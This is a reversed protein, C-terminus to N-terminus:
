RHIVNTDTLLKVEYEIEPNGRDNEKFHSILENLFLTMECLILILDDEDNVDLILGKM